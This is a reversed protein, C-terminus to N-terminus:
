YIAVKEMIQTDPHFEGIESRIITTICAKKKKGTCLIFFVPNDYHKPLPVASTSLPNRNSHHQSRERIPISLEKQRLLSPSCINELEWFTELYVM